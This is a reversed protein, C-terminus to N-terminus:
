HKCMMDLLSYSFRVRFSSFFFCPFGRQRSHKLDSMIVPLARFSVIPKKRKQKESKWNVHHRHVIKQLLSSNKWEHRMKWQDIVFLLFFIDFLVIWGDLSPIDDYSKLRVNGKSKQTHTDDKSPQGQGDFRSFRLEFCDIPHSQIKHTHLLSPRWLFVILFPPFFDVFILM